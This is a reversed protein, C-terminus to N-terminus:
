IWFRIRQQQKLKEKLKELNLNKVRLTNQKEQWHKELWM